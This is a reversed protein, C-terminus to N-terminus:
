INVGIDWEKEKREEHIENWDQSGFKSWWKVYLWRIHQCYQCFTMLSYVIVLACPVIMAFTFNQEGNATIFYFFIATFKPFINHGINLSWLDTYQTFYIFNSGVIIRKKFEIDYPQHILNLHKCNYETNREYRLKSDIIDLKDNYDKM